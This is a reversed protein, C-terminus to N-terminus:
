GFLGFKESTGFQEPLDERAAGNAGRVGLLQARRIGIAIVAYNPNVGGYEYAKLIHLCQTRIVARVLDSVSHVDM